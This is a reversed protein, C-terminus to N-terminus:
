ATTIRLGDLGATTVEVRGDDLVLDLSGGALPLGRLAMRSIAPVRVPRVTLLSDPVRVDLGFLARVLLLAGGAAWAQPRCAAPYPVPVPSQDAGIGAMLEPLRFQFTPAADVLGDILGSAVDAHGNAALGWAAIATDHPWVSGCHYSIPNYGGSAQSLTRLGYGSSMDPRALRKAVLATEDPELIGTFLLHGMNSAVSDVARGDGDIAVAPYPGDDDHVWFRERFRERLRAAWSRWQDAGPRGFRDLLEAGRMAAAFAYGQVESLAMPARAITGDAFRIGDHSDKWGQNALGRPGHRVYKVFGDGDADGYDRMWALAAEINPLLAEVQGSPLGWCWAEHAVIVFLPTADVTGFYHPPLEGREEALAGRRVEHLVKGPEEETARNVSAGQRRALVRLTGGALDADFPLAMLAAWLSDRGFLTLYWPSGAALFRDAPALHDRLELSRLDAISGRVLRAFRPESAVVSPRAGADDDDFWRRPPEQLAACRDEPRTIAHEDQVTVDVCCQVSRGPELTLAVRLRDGVARLTSSRVTVRETGGPRRFELRDGLVDPPVAALNRGHKVDFIYAFDTGAFLEVNVEAPHAGANLLEVEEHLGGAVVRRRTVLVTADIAAREGPPLHAHFIARSADISGGSLPLPAVGDVRLELRDLFRTDRVYFGQDGRPTVDGSPGSIIFSEGRVCTIESLPGISM